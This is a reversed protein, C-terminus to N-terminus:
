SLFLPSCNNNFIFLVVIIVVLVLVVIHQQITKIHKQFIGDIIINSILLSTVENLGNVIVTDDIADVAIIFRVITVCDFSDDEVIVVFLVWFLDSSVFMVASSSVFVVVVVVVVGDGGTTVFVIFLTEFRDIVEVADDAIM